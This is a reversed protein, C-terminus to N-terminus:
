KQWVERELNWDQDHLFNLHGLALRRLMRARDRNEWEENEVKCVIEEFLRTAERAQGIAKMVIALGYMTEVSRSDLELSRRFLREAEQDEGRAHAAWAANRLKKAELSDPEMGKSGAEM